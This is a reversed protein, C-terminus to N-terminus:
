VEYKRKLHNLANISTINDRYQMTIRRIYSKQPLQYAKIRGVDYNTKGWHFFRSTFLFQFDLIEDHFIIALHEQISVASRHTKNVEGGRGHRINRSPKWAM